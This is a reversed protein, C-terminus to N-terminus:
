AALARGGGNSPGRVFGPRLANREVYSLGDVFARGVGGSLVQVARSVRAGIWPIGSPTGANRTTLTLWGVFTSLDGEARPWVVLHWHNPMVCYALLRMRVRRVAAALIREFADYDKEKDFIQMRRQGSEPRSVGLRRGSDAFTTWARIRGLVGGTLDIITGSVKEEVKEAEVKEAEV